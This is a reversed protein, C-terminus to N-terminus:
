FFKILGESYKEPPKKNEKRFLIQLYNANELTLFFLDVM